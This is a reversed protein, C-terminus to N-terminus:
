CASGDPLWALRGAAAGSPTCYVPRAIGGNAPQFLEVQGPQGAPSGAPFVSVALQRGDPSWAAHGHAVFHDDSGDPRVVNIGADSIAAYSIYEGDPSWAPLGYVYIQRTTLRRLGTGDANVAWLAEGGSEVDTPELVFALQSGDPSFTMSLPRGPNPQYRYVTTRNSGDVDQVDIDNGDVVPFRTGDPSWVPLLFGCPTM